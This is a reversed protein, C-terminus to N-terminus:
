RHLWQLMDWELLNPLGLSIYFQSPLLQGFYEMALYDEVYCEGCKIGISYRSHQVYCIMTIFYDLCVSISTCDRRQHSPHCHILLKDLLKSLKKIHM